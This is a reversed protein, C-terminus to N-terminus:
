RFNPDKKVVVLKVAEGAKEDPVGVAAVELYAPCQRWWMRSKTPSVCQIRVGSDHGKQPRRYLFFGQRIWEPSIEPICGATPMLSKPPKMLVNGIVSWSRPAKSACSVSMTETVINGDDDQSLLTTSSIPLGIAGNFEKLDMPNMCCAPSTETLGYAEILTVGTVKKWREAVARQVAM